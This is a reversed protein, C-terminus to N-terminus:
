LFENSMYKLGELLHLIGNFFGYNSCGLRRVSNETDNRCSTRCLHIEVIDAKSNRQTLEWQPPHSGAAHAVVPIDFKYGSKTSPSTVGAKFNKQSSVVCFVVTVPKLDLRRQHKFPRAGPTMKTLLLFRQIGIFLWRLSLLRWGIPHKEAM